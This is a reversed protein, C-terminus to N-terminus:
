KEKDKRFRIFESDNVRLYYTSLNPNGHFVPYLLAEINMPEVVGMGAQEAMVNGEYGQLPKRYTDEDESNTGYRDMLGLMHGFEHIMDNNGNIIPRLSGEHSDTVKSIGDVGVIEMYNSKGDSFDKIIENDGLNVVDIDWMISYTENDHNVSHYYGWSDILSQRYQSALEDTANKGYIFINISITINHSKRDIAVRADRGDPDVLNIPDNACYAYASVTPTNEGLPDPVLWRHLAASYHRAGFDVYPLGFDVSQDEKGTFYLRTQSTGSVQTKEGYSSYDVIDGVGYSDM